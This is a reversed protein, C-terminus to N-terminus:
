KPHQLVCRCVSISPWIAKEVRSALLAAEDVKIAQPSQLRLEIQGDVNKDIFARAFLVEGGARELCVMDTGEQTRSIRPSGYSEDTPRRPHNFDRRISQQVRANGPARNKILPEVISGAFAPEVPLTLSLRQQHKEHEKARHRGEAQALSNPLRRRRGTSLSQPSKTKSLITKRARSANASQAETAM